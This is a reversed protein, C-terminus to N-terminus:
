ASKKGLIKHLAVSGCVSCRMFGEETEEWVTIVKIDEVKLDPKNEVGSCKVCRMKMM